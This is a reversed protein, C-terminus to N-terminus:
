VTNIHMGDVSEMEVDDINMLLGKKKNLDRQNEKKSSRYYIILRVDNCVRGGEVVRETGGVV